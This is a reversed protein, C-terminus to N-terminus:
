SYAAELDAEQERLLHRDLHALLCMPLQEYDPLLWSPISIKAGRPVLTYLAVSPSMASRRLLLKPPLTMQIKYRCSCPM